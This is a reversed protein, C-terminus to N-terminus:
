AGLRMGEFARDLVLVAAPELELNLVGLQQVVLVNVADDEVAPVDALSLDEFLLKRMLREVVGDGIKRVAREESVSDTM